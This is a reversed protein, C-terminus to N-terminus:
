SMPTAEQTDPERVAEYRRWEKKGLMRLWARMDDACKRAEQVKDPHEDNAERYQAWLEVLQPAMPDRGLLIFMPEDPQANAYCDFNGPNNRTGM